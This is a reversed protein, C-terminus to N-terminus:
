SIQILYLFLVYLPAVFLLSDIRDYVGGHGPILSSSDKIEFQRKIKSQVLDGLQACGAIIVFGVFTISSVHGVFTMWYLSTLISATFMGGILGEVTKKPSVAPWLKRKGFNKGWFWAASDMCFNLIILGAVLSRWNELHFLYSLCLFPILMVVGILTSFQGFISLYRKSQVPGSFLYVAMLFNLVVGANGIIRFLGPNSDVFNFFSFGLIFVLVISIYGFRLRDKGFFNTYIEDLVLLGCLGVLIISAKPGVIMAAIVITILVIASIIRLKTDSM